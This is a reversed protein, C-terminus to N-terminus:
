ENKMNTYVAVDRITENKQIASPRLTGDLKPGLTEIGRRSQHNLFHTRFEICICNLKEFADM